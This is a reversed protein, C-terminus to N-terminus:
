RARVFLERCAKHQRLQTWAWADKPSRLIYVTGTETKVNAWLDTESVYIEVAPSTRVNAGDELDVHGYMTGTIRGDGSVTFAKLVADPAVIM